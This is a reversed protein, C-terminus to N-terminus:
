MTFTVHVGEVHPMGKAITSCSVNLTAEGNSNAAFATALTEIGKETLQSNSVDLHRLKMTRSFMAAIKSAGLDGLPNSALCLSDVHDVIKDLGGLDSPSINNFSLDLMKLSSKKVVMAFSHVVDDAHSGAVYLSEVPSGQVATALQSVGSSLLTNGSVNLSRLSSLKRLLDAVHPAGAEHVHNWSLDVNVAAGVKILADTFQKLSDANLNCSSLDVTKLEREIAKHARQLPTLSVVKNEISERHKAYVAIALQEADVDTFGLFSFFNKNHMTSQNSLELFTCQRDRLRAKVLAKEALETDQEIVGQLASCLTTSAKEHAELAEIVCQPFKYTSSSKLVGYVDAEEVVNRTGFVRNRFPQVVTHEMVLLEPRASNQVAYQLFDGVTPKRGLDVFSQKAAAPLVHGHRTSNVLTLLASADACDHNGKLTAPLKELLAADLVAAGGCLRDFAELEKREATSLSQIKSVVFAVASLSEGKLSGDKASQVGLVLFDDFM